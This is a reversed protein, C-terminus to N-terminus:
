PERLLEGGERIPVDVIREAGRVARVRGHFRDSVDHLVRRGPQQHLPLQLVQPVREFRRLPRKHRNEAAGFHRVLEFNDVVQQAFDIAQEDAPCHRVCEELRLADRDSPREDFVVLELGGSRYLRVRGLAANM